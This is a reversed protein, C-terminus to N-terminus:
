LSRAVSPIWLFFNTHIKNKSFFSHKIKYLFIVFFFTWKRIYTAAAASPRFMFQVRSGVLVSFWKGNIKLMNQKDLNETVTYKSWGWIAMNNYITYYIYYGFSEIRSWLMKLTTTFQTRARRGSKAFTYARSIIYTIGSYLDKLSGSPFWRTVSKSHVKIYIYIYKRLDLVLIPLVRTYEQRLFFVM